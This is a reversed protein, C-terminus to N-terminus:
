VGGVCATPPLSQGIAKQTELPSLPRGERLRRLSLCVVPERPNLRAATAMARNAAEPDGLAASVAALQLQGYWDAPFRAVADALRDRAVRNEGRRIAITAAVLDPEDSLPNLSRATRLQSYAVAPSTPWVRAAQRTYRGALWPSLVVVGGAAV